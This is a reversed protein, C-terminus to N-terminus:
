TVGSKKQIVGHFVRSDHTLPTKNMTYTVWNPSFSYYVM